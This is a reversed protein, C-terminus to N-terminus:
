VAMKSAMYCCVIETAFAPITHWNFALAEKSTAALGKFDFYSKDFDTTSFILREGASSELNSRIYTIISM